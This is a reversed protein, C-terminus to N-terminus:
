GREELPVVLVKNTCRDFKEFLKEYTRVGDRRSGPKPHDWFTVLVDVVCGENRDTFDVNLSDGPLITEIGLLDDSWCCNLGPLITHISLVPIPAENKVAILRENTGKLIVDIQRVRMKDDDKKPAGQPLVTECVDVNKLFWDVGSKDSTIRIDFKCPTRINDVFRDEPTGLKLPDLYVVRKTEGPLIPKELLDGSWCCHKPELGNELIPVIYM